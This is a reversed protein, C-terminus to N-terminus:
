LMESLGGDEKKQMANRTHLIYDMDPKINKGWEKSQIANM